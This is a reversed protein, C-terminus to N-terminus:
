ACQQSAVAVAASLEVVGQSCSVFLRSTNATDFAVSITELPTRLRTKAGTKPDWVAVWNQNTGIFLVGDPRVTIGDPYGFFSSDDAAVRRSSLAGDAAVDYVDVRGAYTCTVYLRTEDPSLAVGNIAAGELDEAVVRGDLRISYLGPRNQRPEHRATGYGDFWLDSFYIIGDTRVAVDDPADLRKGDFSDAITEVRYAPKDHGAGTPVLRAIRQGLSDAAVMEGASSPDVALGCFNSPSGADRDSVIEVTRGSKLDHALLLTPAITPECLGEVWTTGCVDWHDSFLLTGTASQLLPAEFFGFKVNLEGRRKGNFLVRSVLDGRNEIACKPDRGLDARRIVACSIFVLSAVSLASRRSTSPDLM